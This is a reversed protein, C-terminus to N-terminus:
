FQESIHNMFGVVTRVIASVVEGINDCRARLIIIKNRSEERYAIAPIDPFLDLGVCMWLEGITVTEDIELQYEPESGPTLIFQDVSAQIARMREIINICAKKVIMRPPMTGNTVFRMRWQRPDATSSSEGTRTYPNLPAIDLAWAAAQMAVVAMGEGSVNPQGIDVRIPIKVFCGPNLRLLEIDNEFATNPVISRTRVVLPATSDNKVDLMFTSKAGCSQLLPISQVRTQIIASNLFPDDAKMDDFNMRAVSMECSCVRRLASTVAANVGTLTFAFEVCPMKPLFLKYKPAVNPMLSREQIDTVKPRSM